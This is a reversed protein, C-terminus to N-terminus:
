KSAKLQANHQSEQPSSKASSSGFSCCLRRSFFSQQSETPNQQVPQAPVNQRTSSSPSSSSSGFLGAESGTIPAVPGMAKAAPVEDQQLSNVVENKPDPTPPFVKRQLDEIKNFVYNNCWSEQNDELERAMTDVHSYYTSQQQASADDQESKDPHYLSNYHMWFTEEDQRTFKQNLMLKTLITKLAYTHSLCVKDHEEIPKENSRPNVSANYRASFSIPFLNEFIIISPFRSGKLRVFSTLERTNKNIMKIELDFSQKGGPRFEIYLKGIKAKVPNRNSNCDYENSSIVFDEDGYLQEIYKNEEIKQLRGIDYTLTSRPKYQGNIEEFSTTQGTQNHASPQIDRFFKIGSQPDDPCSLTHLVCALQDEDQVAKDCALAFEFIESSLSKTKKKVTKIIAVLQYGDEIRDAYKNVFFNIFTLGTQLNVELLASLVCELEYGDQIKNAMDKAFVERDLSFSKLVYALQEGNQIVEQWDRAFKIVMSSLVAKKEQVAELMRALQYGDKIQDEHHEKFSNILAICIDEDVLVRLVKTLAYASQVKSVHEKTLQTRDQDSLLPLMDALIDGNIKKEYIKAIKLMESSNFGMKKMIKLLGCIDIDNNKAAYDVFFIILEFRSDNTMLTNLVDNLQNCHKIKHVQRKAFELRDRGDGDLVNLVNALPRGDWYDNLEIVNEHCIAFELLNSSSQSNSEEKMKKLAAVLQSVHQIQDVSSQTATTIEIDTNPM